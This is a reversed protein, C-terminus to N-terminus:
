LDEMDLPRLMHHREDEEKEAKSATSVKSFPDNVVANADKVAEAMATRMDDGGAGRATRSTSSRSGFSGLASVAAAKKLVRSSRRNIVFSSRAGSSRGMRSSRQFSSRM